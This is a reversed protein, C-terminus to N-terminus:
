GMYNLGLSKQNDIFKNKHCTSVGSYSVQDQDEEHDDDHHKPESKQPAVPVIEYIGYANSQVAYAGAPINGFSTKSTTDPTMKKHNASKFCTYESPNTAICTYEGEDVNQLMPNTKKDLTIM